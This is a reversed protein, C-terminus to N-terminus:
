KELVSIKIAIEKSLEKEDATNLDQNMIICESKDSVPPWYNANNEDRYVAVTPINFASAIHVLATDPSIVLRANELIAINDHISDIINYIFIGPENKYIKEYENIKNKPCVIIFNLNDKNLQKKIKYVITPPLCRKQEFADMNIAIYDVVDSNKLFVERKEISSKRSIISPRLQANLGHKELETKYKFFLSGNKICGLKPQHMKLDSKEIVINCNSRLIGMFINPPIKNGATPSFLIDVAGYKKKIKFATKVISLLANSDRIKYCILSPDSQFITYSYKSCAVIIKPDEYQKRIADIAISCAIADGIRDISYIVVTIKKINHIIGTADYDFLNPIFKRLIKKM